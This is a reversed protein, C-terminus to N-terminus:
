GGHMAEWRQGAHRIEWRPMPCIMTRFRVVRDGPGVPDPVDAGYPGRRHPIGVAKPPCTKLVICSMAVFVHGHWGGGPRACGRRVSGPPTTHGGGQTPMNESRHLVHGRLRPWAVRRRTPCMRATRVGSERRRRRLPEPGIGRRRSTNIGSRSRGTSRATKSAAPRLQPRCFTVPRPDVHGSRLAM